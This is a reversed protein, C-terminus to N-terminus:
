KDFLATFDDKGSKNVVAERSQAHVLSKPGTSAKRTETITTNNQAAVPQPTATLGLELARQRVFADPDTEFLQRQQTRKREAITWEVPDPQAFARAEFSPDIAVMSEAWEAVEDLTEQGHKEVGRAVSEQFRTIRMEEQIQARMQEQLQVRYGEPDDYPDVPQVQAAQAQAMQQRLLALEQEAQKARNREQLMVSVPVSQPAEKSPEEATEAVTEEVTESLTESEEDAEDAEVLEADEEATEEEEVTEVTETVEDETEVIEDEVTENESFLNVFEDM